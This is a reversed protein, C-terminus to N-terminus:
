AEALRTTMGITALTGLKMLAAGDGDLVIVPREAHLAVGLGIASACGMSGVAYLNQPRDGVTFLERASKGTTAVVAASEPITAVVASLVEFRSPRGTLTCSM